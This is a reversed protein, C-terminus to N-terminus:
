WGPPTHQTISWQLRGEHEDEEGDDESPGLACHRERTAIGRDDDRKALFASVDSRIWSNQTHRTERGVSRGVSRSIQWGGTALMKGDLSQAQSSVKDNESLGLRVGKGGAVSPPPRGFVVRGGVRDAGDRREQDDPM